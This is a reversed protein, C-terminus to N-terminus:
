GADRAGNTTPRLHDQDQDASATGTSEGDPGAYDTDYIGIRLRNFVFVEVVLWGVVVAVATIFVTLADIATWNDQNHNVTMLLLGLLVMRATYSAMSVLMLRRAGADAFAVMVLQGVAYFFIVMAAALGASLLGRGGDIIAFVIMCIVAAVVGGTLGAYLLKLARQVHISRGSPKRHVPSDTTM